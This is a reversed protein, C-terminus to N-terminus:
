AGGDVIPTTTAAPEPTEVKSPFKHVSGAKKLTMIKGSLVISLTAGLMIEDEWKGLTPAHKALVKTARTTIADKEQNGFRMLESSEATYGSAKAVNVLVGGIVDLALNLMDAGFLGDPTAAESSGGLGLVSKAKDANRVRDWDVASGDATLPLSLRAVKEARPAAPEPENDHFESMSEEGNISDEIAPAPNSLEERVTRRARTPSRRPSKAM